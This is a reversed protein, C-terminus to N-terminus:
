SQACVIPHHQSPSPANAATHGSNASCSITAAVLALAFLLLLRRRRALLPGAGILTLGLLPLMGASLPMCGVPSPNQSPSPAPSPSARPQAPAPAQYIRYAWTATAGSLPRGAYSVSVMVTHMGVAQSGPRIYPSLGTDWIYTQPACYSVSRSWIYRSDFTFTFLLPPAHCFGITAYTGKVQVASSTYGSNPKVFIRTVAPSAAQGSVAGAVLLWGLTLVSVLLRRTM